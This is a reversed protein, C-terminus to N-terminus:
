WWALIFRFVQHNFEAFVFPSGEILISSMLGPVLRRTWERSLEAMAPFIDLFVRINQKPYSCSMALKSLVTMPYNTIHITLTVVAVSWFCHVVEYQYTEPIFVHM